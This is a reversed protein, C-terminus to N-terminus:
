GTGSSLHEQEESVGPQEHRVTSSVAAKLNADIAASQPINSNFVIGSDDTVGLTNRSFLLLLLLVYSLALLATMRQRLAELTQYIICHVDDPPASKISAAEVTCM